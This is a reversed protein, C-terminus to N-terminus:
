QIYEMVQDISNPHLRLTSFSSVTSNYDNLWV